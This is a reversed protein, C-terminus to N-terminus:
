SHQCPKTRFPHTSESTTEMLARERYFDLTEAASMEEQTFSTLLFFTDLYLEGPREQVVAVVRRPAKWTAAQHTM